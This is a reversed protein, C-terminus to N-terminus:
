PAYMEHLETVRGDQVVLRYTSRLRTIREAVQALSGPVSAAGDLVSIVADPSVAVTRLAPNRNRWYYGTCWNNSTDTVGDAACAQEAAPGTFWDIKDLTLRFAAPDVATVFGYVEGALDTPPVAPDTAPGPAPDTTSGSTPPPATTVTTVTLTTVSPAPCPSGAGPGSPPRPTPAPAPPPPAIDPVPDPARRAAAVRVLVMLVLVFVIAGILLEM